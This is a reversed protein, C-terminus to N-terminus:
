VKTESEMEPMEVLVVEDQLKAVSARAKMYYYMFDAVILLYMCQFCVVTWYAVPHSFHLHTEYVLSNFVDGIRSVFTAAVFHAIPAAVKGGSRAMMIVQPLLALVDMVLCACFLYGFWKSSHHVDEDHDGPLWVHDDVPLVIGLLFGLPILYAARVIDLEEEYSERNFWFVHRLIDLVILLSVSGFSSDFDLDKWEFTSWDEPCTLMIRLGYVVSYMIMTQGSIGNAGNGGTIKHRLFILGLIEFNSCCFRVFKDLNIPLGVKRYWLASVAVFCCFGLFSKRFSKEITPTVSSKEFKAYKDDAEDTDDTPCKDDAEATAKMIVCALEM